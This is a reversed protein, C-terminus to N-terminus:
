TGDTSGVQNDLRATLDSAFGGCHGADCNRKAFHLHRISATRKIKISNHPAEKSERLKNLGRLMTPLDGEAFVSLACILSRLLADVNHVLHYQFWCRCLATRMKKLHMFWVLVFARSAVSRQFSHGRSNHLGMTVCELASSPRDIGSISCASTISIPIVM